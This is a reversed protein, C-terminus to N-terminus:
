SVPEIGVFRMEDRGYFCTQLAFSGGLGVLDDTTAWTKPTIRIDVVEYVQEDGAIRVHQGPEWSLVADGSCNNHAAWVPPVDDREYSEMETFTGDCQDLQPVGGTNGLEVTPLDDFVVRRADAVTSDVSIKADGYLREVLQPAVVLGGLILGGGLLLVLGVALPWRRSPSRGGTPPHDM